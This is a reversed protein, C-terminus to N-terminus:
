NNEEKIKQPKDKMSTVIENLSPQNAMLNAPDGQRSKQMHTSWVQSKVHTNAIWVWTEMSM